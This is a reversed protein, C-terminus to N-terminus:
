APRDLFTRLYGAYSRPLISCSGRLQNKLFYPSCYIHFLKQRDVVIAVHEINVHNGGDGGGAIAAGDEGLIPAFEVTDEIKSFFKFIIGFDTGHNGAVTNGCEVVEAVVLRFYPATVVGNGM